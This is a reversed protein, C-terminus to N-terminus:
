RWAEKASLLVIEESFTSMLDFRREMLIKVTDPYGPMVIVNFQSHRKAFAILEDSAENAYGRAMFQHVDDIVLVKGIGGELMELAKKSTYGVINGL